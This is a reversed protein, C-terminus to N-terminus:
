REARLELQFNRFYGLALVSWLLERLKFKHGGNSKISGVRDIWVRGTHAEVRVPQNLRQEGGRLVAKKETIPKRSELIATEEKPRFHENRRWDRMELSPQHLLREREPQRPFGVQKVAKGVTSRWKAEALFHYGDSIDERDGSAIIGCRVELTLEGSQQQFRRLSCRQHNSGGGVGGGFEESM